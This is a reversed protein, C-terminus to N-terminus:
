HVRLSNAVDVLEQGTLAGSIVIRWRNTYAVLVPGQSPEENIRGGITQTTFTLSAVWVRATAGTLLGDNLAVDRSGKRGASVEDLPRQGSRPTVTVTFSDFGRRYDIRVLHACRSLALRKHIGIGPTQGQPRRVLDNSYHWSNDNEHGPRSDEYVATAVAARQYGAPVHAPLIVPTPSSQEAVSDPSGFRTGYDQFYNWRLEATTKKLLPVVQWDTPLAPDVEMRTVRMCSILHDGTETPWYRDVALLLGTEKDVVVTEAGM